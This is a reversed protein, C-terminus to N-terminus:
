ESVLIKDLKESADESLKIRAGWKETFRELLTPVYLASLGVVLNAALAFWQAFTMIGTFPSTGSIVSNLQLAAALLLFVGTVRSGLALQMIKEDNQRYFALNQIIVGTIADDDEASTKSLEEVIDDHEDMLEASRVIWSIAFAFGVVIIGLYPLGMIELKGQGVLPILKNVGYALSFALSLAAGLLNAIILGKFSNMELKLRNFAGTEM